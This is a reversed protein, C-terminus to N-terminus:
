PTVIVHQDNILPNELNTMVVHSAKAFKNNSSAIVVPHKLEDGPLRNLFDRLDALTELRGNPKTNEDVEKIREELTQNFNLLNVYLRRGTKNNVLIVHDPVEGEVAPERHMVTLNPTLKVGKRVRDWMFSNSDPPIPTVEHVEAMDKSLYRLNHQAIDALSSGLGSTRGPNDSALRLEYAEMAKDTKTIPFYEINTVYYEDGNREVYFVHLFVQYGYESYMGDSQDFVLKDGSPFEHQKFAKKMQTEGNIKLFFNLPLIERDARKIM